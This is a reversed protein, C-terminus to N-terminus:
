VKLVLLIIDVMFVEAKKISIMTIKMRTTKLPSNAM